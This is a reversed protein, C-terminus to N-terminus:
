PQSPKEEPGGFKAMWGTIAGIKALMQSPRGAIGHSAEPFRVLATEIGRLKLARYYQEAESLPTRYDKDGVLLMTPTTVNGVLSIPSRAYYHDPDEWPMAPFWYRTFFAPGDATLAHTYWNIVPKASVAARFRDTKGVIWATLVGGGSGGTVYLRDEDINGEGIVHDVCSMLDDYDNGPYAHHILNGFEQGYGTSGRPNTYVVVYGRAAYLQLEMSFYDGYHAFPGGHIELLMPYEQEPDFDPPYMIWGQVRRGDHASETWFSEVRAPKKKLFLGRNFHTLQKPAEGAQGAALEPPMQSNGM